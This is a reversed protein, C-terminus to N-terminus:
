MNQTVIVLIDSDEMNESEILEPTSHYKKALEWTDATDQAPVIVMSPYQQRESTESVELGTVLEIIEYERINLMAEIPFRLDIGGAIVSCYVEGLKICIECDNFDKDCDLEIDEINEVGYIKGSADSYMARATAKFKIKGDIGYAKGAVVSSSIVESVAPTCDILMKYSEHIVVSDTVKALSFKTKEINYDASNSYADSVYNIDIIESSVSQALISMTLYAITKGYEDTEMEIDCGTSNLHMVTKVTDSSASLEMVQSFNCAKMFGIPQTDGSPQALICVNATARFILKSGVYKIDDVDYKINQCLVADYGQPASPMTIEETIIFTKEHVETVNETEFTENKIQLGAVNLIDTTIELEEEKYASFNGLVEAKILIKRPNLVKVDLATLRLDAILDTDDDINEADSTLTFSIKAPLRVLEENDAVYLVACAVTGTASARGDGVETGEILIMGCADVIRQIDPCTDPVVCDCMEETVPCTHLIERLSKIENKEINIEM